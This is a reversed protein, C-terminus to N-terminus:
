TGDPDYVPQESPDGADVRLEVRRSRACDRVARSEGRARAHRRLGARDPGHESVRGQGAEVRGGESRCRRREGARARRSEDAYLPEIQTDFAPSEVTCRNSGAVSSCPAISRRPTPRVGDPIVAPSPATQTAVVFSSATVHSSGQTPIPSGSGRRPRASRPPRRRRRRRPRSCQRRPRDRAHIGVVLSTTSVISSPAAGEPM